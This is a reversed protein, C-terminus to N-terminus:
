DTKSFFTICLKTLEYFSFVRLLVRVQLASRVISELTLFVTLNKIFLTENTQFSLGNVHNVNSETWTM